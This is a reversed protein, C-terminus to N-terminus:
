STLVLRSGIITNMTGTFRGFNFQGAIVGFTYRGGRYFWPNSSDVFFSYDEYWNNHNRITGDEDIYNYFPGMEGTADGLIRYNYTTTSSSASYVDFYKSNYSVMNTTNFGSSGLQESKYSAMCEHAGGSMDYIGTINGTTTPHEKGISVGNTYPEHPTLTNGSELQPLAYWIRGNRVLNFRITIYSINAPMTYTFYYRNWENNKQGTRPINYGWSLRTGNKDYQIVTIETSTIGAVNDSMAYISYTLEDGEKLGAIDVRQSVQAYINSTLDNAEIKVTPYGMFTNNNDISIYQTGGFSWNDFGSEFTSNKLYNVGRSAYGLTKTYDNGYTGPYTTQNTGEVAGYGTKYSLNNNINIEKNIGYKSHSLYAVAGWETNKMMHSDNSRDYNYAAVFMNYVTNNRWSFVDPKVIIKSSDSSNVQAGATTTAGLYGTEFKGVWIGNTNFSTFAPHTLWSGETSGNSIAVDKTEFVIEISQAISETPKSSIVGTYNGEDFIKYKYRPIWVFYSRIASEPIIDGVNYTGSSLMVANAWEKNSYDYWGDKLDAYIVTGDDKIRVPIMNSGLIPDTGNLINESYTMDNCDNSKYESIGDSYIVKVDNICLTATAVTGNSSLNVIGSTPTKGDMKIDLITGACTDGTVNGSCLNGNPMVTYAVDPINERNLNKNAVAIKIGDAYNEASRETTSKKSDEILGVVIPSAILAIIALIVIVALLEILTFGKKLNM